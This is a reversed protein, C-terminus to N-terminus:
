RKKKKELVYVVSGRKYEAGSYLGRVVVGRRPMDLSSDM